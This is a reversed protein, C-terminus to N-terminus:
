KHCKLCSNSAGREDHCDSCDDMKMRDWAKFRLGPIIQGEINRSYGSIRNIQRDTLTESKGHSGHCRECEIEAIQVHQIHSFYVNDPQRSYTRWPIERDHAVFEDVLRKEAESEGLVESHCEKCNSLRPIAMSRVDATFTHCNDCTMGVAEGTHVAHSFQLPQPEKQYLLSPFFVWGILLMGVLGALFSLRGSNM